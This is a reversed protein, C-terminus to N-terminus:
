IRDDARVEDGAEGERAEASSGVISELAERKAKMRVHLYDRLVEKSVHGVIQRITEEGAGNEALQTILTHRHDHWRGTVNAKKRVTKWATKLTTVHRTPDKPYPKGYPFVYLEPQIEKFKKLYWERHELIAEHLASNIPITRGDGAPTKSKGIEVFRKDLHLQSWRLTKIETDRMGANIALALALEIHPSRSDKSRDRMRHTEEPEYAKGIKRRAPLKLKKKKRLRARILEGSDGLLTLLFRVEENISKPAASEKLRDSQYQLVAADDIDVVLKDGLLRVVHGIAYEAFTIGRYRLRYDALYDEAIDALARIRNQQVETINHIGRELDRRRQQEAERAVTKSRSHTSERVRQNRFSFDYWWVSNRRFLM